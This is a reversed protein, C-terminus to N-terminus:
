KWKQYLNRGEDCIPAYLPERICKYFASGGPTMNETLKTKKPEVVNEQLVFQLVKVFRQVFGFM